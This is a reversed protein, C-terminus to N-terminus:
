AVECTPPESSVYDVGFVSTMRRKLALFKECAEGSLSSGHYVYSIMASIMGDDRKLINMTMDDDFESKYSSVITLINRSGRLVLGDNKKDYRTFGMGIIEEDLKRVINKKLDASMSVLVEGRACLNPGCGGLLVVAFVIALNPINM